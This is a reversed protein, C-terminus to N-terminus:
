SCQCEGVSDRVGGWVCVSASVWVIGSGGGGCVCVCGDEDVGVKMVGGGCVCM